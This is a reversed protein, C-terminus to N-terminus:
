SPPLRSGCRGRDPTSPSTTESRFETRIPWRPLFGYREREPSDRQVGQAFVLSDVRLPPEPTDMMYLYLNPADHGNFTIGSLTRFRLLRSTEVGQQAEWWQHVFQPDHLGKELLLLQHSGNTKDHMDTFSRGTNAMVIAATTVLLTSLLILLAVFLNQTKSNKLRSRCLLWIAAM